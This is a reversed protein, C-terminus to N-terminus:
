EDKKPASDPQNIDYGQPNSRVSKLIESLQVIRTEDYSRWAQHQTLVEIAISIADELGAQAPYPLKRRKSIEMLDAVQKELSEQREILKRIYWGLFLGVILAFFVIAIIINVNVEM